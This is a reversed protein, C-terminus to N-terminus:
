KRNSCRPYLPYKHESFFCKRHNFINKDIMESTIVTKNILDYVFKYGLFGLKQKETNNPKTQYIPSRDGNFLISYEPKYDEYLDINEKDFINESNDDLILCNTCSNTSFIKYDVKGECAINIEKLTDSDPHKHRNGASIGFIVSEKKEILKNWIVPNTSTKSGHHSVKVFDATIDFGKKKNDNDNIGDIWIEKPADGGFVWSFSDSQIIIISSILNNDSDPSKYSNPLILKVFSDFNLKEFKDIHKKLPGISFSRIGECLNNNIFKVDRIYESELKTKSEWYEVNKFLNSLIERQNQIIKEVIKKEEDKFTSLKGLKFRNIFLQHFKDKSETGGLWFNKIIVKKKRWLEWLHDFGSLHDFDYHSICCFSIVVEQTKSLHELYAVAPPTSQNLSSSFFFDIIGFEGNPLQILINDGAGVNFLYIKFQQNLEM